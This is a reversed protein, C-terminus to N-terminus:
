TIQLPLLKITRPFGKSAKKFFFLVLCQLKEKVFSNTIVIPSKYRLCRGLYVARGALINFPIKPVKSPPAM